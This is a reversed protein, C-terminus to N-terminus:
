FSRRKSCKNQCWPLLLIVGLVILPLVFLGLGLLFYGLIDSSVYSFSGKGSENWKERAVAHMVGAVLFTIYAMLNLQVWVKWFRWPSAIAEWDAERIDRRARQFKRHLQQNFTESEITM